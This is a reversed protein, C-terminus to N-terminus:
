ECEGIFGLYCVAEHTVAPEYDDNSVQRTDIEASRHLNGYSGLTAVYYGDGDQAKMEDIASKYETCLLTATETLEVDACAATYTASMQNTCDTWDQNVTCPNVDDMTVDYRGTEYEESHFTEPKEPSDVKTWHRATTFAVVVVIAAILLLAGIISLAVWLGVRRKKAPEGDAVPGYGPYAANGTAAGDYGPYAATAAYAPDVPAATPAGYPDVLPATPQADFTPQAEYAPPPADFAPPPADYAPADPAPPPPTQAAPQTSLWYAYWSQTSGPDAAVQQAEVETLQLGLSGRLDPRTLSERFEELSMTM